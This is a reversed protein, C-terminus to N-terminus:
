CEFRRVKDQIQELESPKPNGAAVIKELLTVNAARQELEKPLKDSIMYKNVRIQDELRQFVNHSSVSSNSQRIDSLQQQLRLRRSELHQIYAKQDDRQTLLERNKEKEARLKKAVALLQNCNPVHEVQEFKELLVIICIPSKFMRKVKRQIREIRRTLVERDDEMTQLDKRLEAVTENVNRSVDWQKHTQKFEEILLEYQEYVEAVDSDTRMEVPIDVKVLYRSLYARKKLDERRSLLWYLIPHILDAEGSILGERFAVSDVNETKLKRKIPNSM